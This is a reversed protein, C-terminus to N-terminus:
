VDLMHVKWRGGGRSSAPPEYREVRWSSSFLLQVLGRAVLQGEQPGGGGARLTCAAGQVVLQGGLLVDVSVECPASRGALMEHLVEGPVAFALGGGSSTSGGGPQSQPQKAKAAGSGPTAKRGALRVCSPAPPDPYLGAAQHKAM